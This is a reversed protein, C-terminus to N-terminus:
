IKVPNAKLIPWVKTKIGTQLLDLANITRKALWLTMLSTLMNRQLFLMRGSYSESKFIAETSRHRYFSKQLFDLESEMECAKVLDM